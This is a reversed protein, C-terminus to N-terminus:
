FPIADYRWDPCEGEVTQFEQPIVGHKKCAGMEFQTCHTCATKILDLRALAQRLAGRQIEIQQVTAGEGPEDGPKWIASLTDMSKAISEPTATRSM